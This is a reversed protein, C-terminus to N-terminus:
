LLKKLVVSILKNSMYNIHTFSQIISPSLFHSCTSTKHMYMHTILYCAENIIITRRFLKQLSQHLKHKYIKLGKIFYSISLVPTTIPLFKIILIWLTYIKIANYYKQIHM